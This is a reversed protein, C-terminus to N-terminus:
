WQFGGAAVMGVYGRGNANAAVKLVWRNNPTVHSIGLAVGYQGRYTAGAFTMLSKGPLTPQPLGAVAMAAATGASAKRDVQAVAEDMQAKNVADTPQTGRAVDTIRREHGPEGVSVRTDDIHIGLQETLLSPLDAGIFERLRGQASGHGCGGPQDCSLTDDHASAVNDALMPGSHGSSHQLAQWAARVDDATMPEVVGRPDAPAVEARGGLDAPAVEAHGGPDAPARESPGDQNVLAVEAHQGEDAPALETHRSKDALVLAPQSDTNTLQPGPRVKNGALMPQLSGGDNVNALEAQLSVTTFSEAVVTDKPNKYRNGSNDKASRNKKTQEELQDVRNGLTALENKITEKHETFQNKTTLALENITETIKGYHRYSQDRIDKIQDQTTTNANNLKNIFSKNNHALQKVTSNLESINQNLSEKLNVQENSNRTLKQSLNSIKHNINNLQDETASSIHDIKQKIATNETTIQNTFKLIASNTDIKLKDLKEKTQSHDVDLRILTSEFSALKSKTIDTIISELASEEYSHNSATADNIFSLALVVSFASLKSSIKPIVFDSRRYLPASYGTIQQSYDFATM